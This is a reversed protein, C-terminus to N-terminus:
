LFPVNQMEGAAFLDDDFTQEAVEVEEDFEERHTTEEEAEYTSNGFHVEDEQYVSLDPLSGPVSGSSLRRAARGETESDDQSLESSGLLRERLYDFSSLKRLRAESASPTQSSSRPFTLQSGSQRGLSFNRIRTFTGQNSADSTASLAPSPPLLDPLPYNQIPQKWYNFDTYEPTWARNIPPFMQDVLDAM